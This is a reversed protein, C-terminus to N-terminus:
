GKAIEFEKILDDYVSEDVAMKFARSLMKGKKVKEICEKKACVYAGRGNKKGTFDLSIQGEASKVIRILDSKDHMEKCAICMRQPTKKEKM